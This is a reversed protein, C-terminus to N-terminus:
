STKIFPQVSVEYNLMEVGWKDIVVGIHIALLVVFAYGVLRHLKVTRQFPARLLFTLLSHQTAPLLALTMAFTAVWGTGASLNSAWLVYLTGFGVSVSVHFIDTLEMELGLWRMGPLPIHCSCLQRTLLRSAAGGFLRLMQSSLVLAVLYATSFTVTYVEDMEFIESFSPKM